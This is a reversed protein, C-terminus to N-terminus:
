ARWRDLVEALPDLKDDPILRYQVREGDRRIFTGVPRRRYPETLVLISDQPTFTLLGSQHRARNFPWLRRLFRYDELRGPTLMASRIPVVKILFFAGLILLTPAFVPTIMLLFIGLPMGGGPTPATRFLWVYFFISGGLVLSICIASFWLMKSRRPNQRLELLNIEEGPATPPPPTEADQPLPVGLSLILPRPQPLAGLLAKADIGAFIRAPVYFWMAKRRSEMNALVALRAPDAEAAIAKRLGRRALLKTTIVQLFMVPLSFVSGIILGTVLSLAITIITTETGPTATQKQTSRYVSWLSQGLTTESLVKLWIFWAPIALISILMVLPM